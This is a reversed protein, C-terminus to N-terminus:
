NSRVIRFGLNNAIFDPKRGGYRCTVQCYASNGGWSGGRVVRELTDLKLWASGDNPAGRYSNHYSDACWETVNGSMDFLGLENPKKLGVTETKGTAKVGNWVGVEELLNSGSYMYGKSCVGGRAAFEWEAETPLRYIKSSVKSLWKCYAVADNWSVNIVPRQGKGWSNDDPKKHNTLECFLDYEDFTIATASLFFPQVEVQHSPKESSWGNDNGMIFLGGLIPIMDPEIYDKRIRNSIEDAIDVWVDQREYLNYYSNVPRDMALGQLEKLRKLNPSGNPVKGVMIPILISKKAKENDFAIQLETHNIYKSDLVSVSVLVIVLDSAYLKEKITVDWHEGLQIDADHWVRILQEAVPGVRLCRLCEDKFAIDDHAYIIFTNLQRQM